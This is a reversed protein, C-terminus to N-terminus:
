ISATANGFWNTINQVYRDLFDAVRPARRSLESLGTGLGDLPIVVVGGRKLHDIVPAFDVEIFHAYKEFKDDSWYDGPGTGPTRKTRVGVANPENRMEAAQGGLGARAENDGFVYLVNPNGRLDARYIMKQRVVPM